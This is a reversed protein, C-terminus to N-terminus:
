RPRRCQQAWFTQNDNVDDPVKINFTLLHCIGQSIIRLRYDSLSHGMFRVVVDVPKWDNLNDAHLRVSTLQVTIGMYRLRELAANLQSTTLTDIEFSGDKGYLCILGKSLVDVCFYFLEHATQIKTEHLNLQVPKKNINDLFVYNIMESMSMNLNSM